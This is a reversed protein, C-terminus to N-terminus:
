SRAPPDADSERVFEVGGPKRIIRLRTGPPLREDLDPPLPVSRDAGVETWQEVVQDHDHVRGNRITITRGFAAAVEPDHTVVVVTTGFRHSIETLLAVVRDRSSRDLQSTPEDAVLLGPAACIGIAIAIRQKEGGSMGKVHRHALEGLGLQGLLDGPRPLQGRRYGHAARQAFAVNATGSGYPLLNRSPNQMVIGVRQGRLDLLERETMGAIDDAGIYLHGSTPRQFGALLSVLTSKGSGSAGLVALSEGARITLDLRDLAVTSTGDITYVHRVQECRVGLGTDFLATTAPTSM